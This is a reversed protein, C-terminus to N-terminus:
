PAPSKNCQDLGNKQTECDGVPDRDREQGQREDGPDAPPAAADQM